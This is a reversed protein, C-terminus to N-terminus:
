AELERLKAEAAAIIDHQRKIEQDKLTAIQDLFGSLTLANPTLVGDIADVLDRAKNFTLTSNYVPGYGEKDAAVVQVTGDRNFNIYFHAVMHAM